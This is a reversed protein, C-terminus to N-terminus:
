RSLGRHRGSGFTWSVGRATRRALLDRGRHREIEARWPVLAFQKANGILAFRGPGLDIAREYRGPMADGTQLDVAERGSAQTIRAIAASRERQALQGRVGLDLTEEGPALHGRERLWEIRAKRAAVLRQGRTEGSIDDLWTVGDRTVQQDLSLWSRVRFDVGGQREREFAAARGLYDEPITWNGDPMRVVLGARRLAELRRVHAHRFRATSTPDAEAHLNESYLGGTREAIGAITRDSARARAQRPGAKVVAGDPPIAGPEADGLDVLWKQGDFDELILSRRDRLEDEPLAALVTGTLVRAGARSPDFTALRELGDQRGFRHALTRIVDNRQGMEALVDDWGSKMKWRQGTVQETLGLARLHALRQRRLSREFRAAESSAAPSVDVMGDEVDRLIARDIATLRDKRIEANRSRAIELDRRPGLRETVLDSARQRLGSKLYDPAIVLDHGRADRGRVVIHTHPHGTNHHDVALWDLRTGLDREMRAMLDRTMERLDGLAGGDEPSVIIRFQHRDTESRDLFGSAAPPEGERTYLEGGRGDREVGDRQIYRIHARFAGAGGGRGSRAIHFKVIVRRMRFAALRQRRFELQRAVAGGRGLRRGTYGRRKRAPGLKATAKRLQKSFRKGGGRGRDRIRGLRPTFDDDVPM